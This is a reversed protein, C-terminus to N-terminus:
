HAKNAKLKDINQCLISARQQDLAILRERFFLAARFSALQDSGSQENGIMDYADALQRMWEADTPAFAALRECVQPPTACGWPSAHHERLYDRHRTIISAIMQLGSAFRKEWGTAMSNAAATEEDRSHYACAEDLHDMWPGSAVTENALLREASLRRHIFLAQNLYGETIRPDDTPLKREKRATGLHFLADAYLASGTKSEEVIASAQDILEQAKATNHEIFDYYIGLNLLALAYAWHQTGLSNAAMDRAREAIQLLSGEPPPDRKIIRARVWDNESKAYEEIQGKDDSM